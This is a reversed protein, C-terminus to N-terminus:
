LEAREMEGDISKVKGTRGFVAMLNLEMRNNFSCIRWSQLSQGLESFFFSIWGVSNFSFVWSYLHRVEKGHDSHSCLRQWHETVIKRELSKKRSVRCHIKHGRASTSAPVKVYTFYMQLDTAHLIFDRSYHLSGLHGHKCCGKHACSIDATGTSDSGPMLEAVRSVACHMEKQLNDRQELCVIRM